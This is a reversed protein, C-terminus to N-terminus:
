LAPAPEPGAALVSRAPRTLAAFALVAAGFVILAGVTLGSSYGNVFAHAPTSGGALARSQAAAFVAGIIAIGFSGGIERFANHVASAIGSREVPVASIAINSLGITLAGGIGGVTLAPLRELFTSHEGLGAFLLLAVGMLAMGTAILVNAPIRAALRGSLPALLIIMLVWPLLAAGAAVPSERVVDQLYLSTYLLVGFTALNAVLVLVNAVTFERSRFMSLDTMPAPARREVAVFAALGAAATAFLAVITPSGWGYDNAKILAYTLAFLAGTILSVGAVDLRRDADPDRSEPIFRAGVVLGIVGIPLNVFFVWTWHIHETILGGVVPGIAFAAATTAAWIGIATAREREDPFTHSIIALTPPTMMAAGVGQLVRAGILVAASPALGALLSAVTFVGLGGLFLRRRGFTDALRGGTVLLVAFSLVYGNVVWALGSLGLHLDQQISPLAVNVVTNDLTTMFVAFVVAILTVWRNPSSTASPPQM